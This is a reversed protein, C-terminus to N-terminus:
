SSDAKEGISNLLANCPKYLLYIKITWSKLYIGRSFNYHKLQAKFNQVSYVAYISGEVGLRNRNPYPASIYLLNKALLTNEQYPTEYLALSM